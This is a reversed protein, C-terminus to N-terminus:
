NAEDMAASSGEKQEYTVSPEPSWTPCVTPFHFDLHKNLRSTKEPADSPKYQIEQLFNQTDPLSVDIRLRESHMVNQVSQEGHQRLHGQTDKTHTDPATTHSHTVMEGSKVSAQHYVHHLPYTEAQTKELHPPVYKEHAHLTSHTRTTSNTHPPCKGRNDQGRFGRLKSSWHERWQLAMTSRDAVLRKEGPAWSRRNEEAGILLFTRGAQLAPCGCGLDRDPVWVAQLGRKVQSSGARFVSQVWM